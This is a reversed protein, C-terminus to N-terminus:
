LLIVLHISANTDQGGLNKLAPGDEIEDFVLEFKNNDIDPILHKKNSPWTPPPYLPDLAIKLANDVMPPIVRMLQTCCTNIDPNTNVEILWVKYSADIM